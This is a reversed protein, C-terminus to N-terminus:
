NHLEDEVSRPKRFMRLSSDKGLQQLRQGYFYGAVFVFFALFLLTVTWSGLGFEYALNVGYLVFGVPPVWWFRVKRRWARERDLLRALGTLEDLRGLREGLKM